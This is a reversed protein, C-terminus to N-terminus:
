PLVQSAWAEQQSKGGKGEHHTWSVQRAAQARWLHWKGIRSARQEDLSAREMKVWKLFVHQLYKKLHPSTIFIITDKWQQKEAGSKVLASFAEPNKDEERNRLMAGVEWVELLAHHGKGMFCQNQSTVPASFHTGWWDTRSLKTWDSLRTQSKTVEHVAARWAERDMVLERLKSLSMDM